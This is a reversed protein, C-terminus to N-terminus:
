VHHQLWPHSFHIEVVTWIGLKNSAFEEAEDHTKFKITNDHEDKMTDLRDEDIVIFLHTILEKM